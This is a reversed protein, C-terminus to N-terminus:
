GFYIHVSFGAPEPVSEAHFEIRRPDGVLSSIPVVDGSIPHVWGAFCLRPLTRAMQSPMKLINGAKEGLELFHFAAMGGMRISLGQAGTEWIQTLIRDFEGLTGIEVGNVAEVLM